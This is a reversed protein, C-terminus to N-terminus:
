SARSIAKGKSDEAVTELTRFLSSNVGVWRGVLMVAGGAGVTGSSVRETRFSQWILVLGKIELWERGM